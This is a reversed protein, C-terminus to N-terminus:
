KREASPLRSVAMGESIQRPSQKNRTNWLTGSSWSCSPPSPPVPSPAPCPTVIAAYDINAYNGNPNGVGSMYCGVIPGDILLQTDEDNTTVGWTSGGVRIAFGLKHSDVKEWALSAKDGYATLHWGNAATITVNKVRVPGYSNNVIKCGTATVVSGDDSMAMPLATPVTVSLKTPAIDDEGGGIGGNTTTLEVPTSGTGGSTDIEAAFATVSVALSLCLVLILSLIKKM